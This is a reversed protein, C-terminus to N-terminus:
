NREIYREKLTNIHHMIHGIIVYGTTRATMPSKVGGSLTYVMFTSRAETISEFFKETAKRLATFEELLDDMSRGSVDAGSAYLNEDMNPLLVKDDGRAAVLARYVMVRETDILHMLIEKVSWKGEAYRYDHKIAPISRFFEATKESNERLLETFGGEPVLDIYGTFHPNYENKEPRTM